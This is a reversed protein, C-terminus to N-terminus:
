HIDPRSLLASTHEESRSSRCPASARHALPYRGTFDATFRQAINAQFIDGAAIYDLTRRIACDYADRTFESRPNAAAFAGTQPELADLPPYGGHTWDGCALWRGTVNDHVLQGPCCGLQIIPWHRDDDARTPLKEIWRGLDYSLQGIWLADTADLLAHMDRFPRHTLRETLLTDARGTWESRGLHDNIALFRYMGVPEALISWRAWRAEARGSHLLMVQRDVPWRRLAELPDFSWNLERGVFDMDAHYPPNVRSTTPHSAIHRFSFLGPMAM